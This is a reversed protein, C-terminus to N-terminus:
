APAGAPDPPGRLDDALIPVQVGIQSGETILIGRGPPQSFVASRPLRAGIVEAHLHSEPCLLLGTRSQRVEVIFGRMPRMLEDPTGAIIM